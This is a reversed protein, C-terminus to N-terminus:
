LPCFRQEAETLELAVEVSTQSFFYLKGAAQLNQTCGSVVHNPGHM